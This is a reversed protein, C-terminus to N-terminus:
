SIWESVRELLVGYLLFHFSVEEQRQQNCRRKRSREQLMQVLESSNELICEEDQTREWSPKNVIKRIQARLRVMGWEVYIRNVVCPQM